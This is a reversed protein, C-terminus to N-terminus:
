KGYNQRVTTFKYLAKVLSGHSASRLPGMHVIETYRMRWAPFGLHCRAPAYVLLLDPDPGRCGITTLADDMLKETFKPLEQIIGQERSIFYRESLLNAAKVVSEKGDSFSAFELTRQNPDDLAKTADVLQWSMSKTKGKEIIVEKAKKLVGEMDYLCVHKVGIDALWQLLEIIKSLDRADESEVVIALYKLKSVDLTSYKKLSSISHSELMTYIDVAQHWLSVLLQLFKWVLYAFLHATKRCGVLQSSSRHAMAPVRSPSPRRPLLPRRVDDDSSRYKNTITRLLNSSKRASKYGLSQAEDLQENVRASTPDGNAPSQRDSTPCRRSLPPSRLNKRLRLLSEAQFSYIFPGCTGVPGM